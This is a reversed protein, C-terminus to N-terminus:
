KELRNLIQYFSEPLYVNEIDNEIARFLPAIEEVKFGAIGCGIETVLFRLESHAKAFALFEDIYPKITTVGGQMTPIAYAQGQLGVGQGWTAGFKRHAVAAAGGAHIGQLNSGFVFVENEGLTEIWQPSVNRAQNRCCHEYIFPDPLVEMLSKDVSLIINCATECKACVSNFYSQWHIWYRNDIMLRDNVGIPHGAGKDNNLKKGNIYTKKGFASLRYNGDRYQRILCHVADIERDEIPIDCQSNRGLTIVKMKECM